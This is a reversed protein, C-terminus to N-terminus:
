DDTTSGHNFHSMFKALYVQIQNNRSYSQSKVTKAMDKWNHM